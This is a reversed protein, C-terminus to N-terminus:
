QRKPSLRWIAAGEVAHDAIYQAVQLQHARDAIPECHARVAWVGGPPALHARSLARASEKKAIGAWKRPNHDPFRALIHFHHETVALIIVEINHFHFAALLSDRACTRADISLSVADRTMSERAYRRLPHERDPDPVETCAGAVRNHRTTWGRTDGPLWAGYTNGTVHYWDNWPLM